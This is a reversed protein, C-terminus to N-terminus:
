FEFIIPSNNILATATQQITKYELWGVNQQAHTTQKPSINTYVSASSFHKERGDYVKLATLVFNYNFDDNNRRNITIRSQIPSIM